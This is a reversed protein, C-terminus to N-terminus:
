SYMYTLVVFGDLLHSQPLIGMISAPWMAVKHIALAVREQTGQLRLQGSYKRPISYMYRTRLAYVNYTLMPSNNLGDFIAKKYFTYRRPVYFVYEYIIM